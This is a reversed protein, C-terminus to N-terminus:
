IFSYKMWFTFSIVFFLLFYRELVHWFDLFANLILSFLLEYSSKIYGFTQSVVDIHIHSVVQELNIIHGKWKSDWNLSSYGLSWCFLHSGDTWLWVNLSCGNIIRICSCTIEAVWSFPLTSVAMLIFIIYVELSGCGFDLCAIGGESCLYSM